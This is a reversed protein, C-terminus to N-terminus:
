DSPIVWERGRRGKVRIMGFALDLSHTVCINTEFSGPTDYFGDNSDFGSHHSRKSGSSNFKEPRFGCLIILAAFEARQSAM